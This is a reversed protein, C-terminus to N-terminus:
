RIPIQGVQRSLHVVKAHLQELESDLERVLMLLGQNLNYMAPDDHASVHLKINDEFFKAANRISM